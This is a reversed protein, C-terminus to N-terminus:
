GFPALFVASGRSGRNARFGGGAESSPNMWVRERSNSCKKRKTAEGKWATKPWHDIFVRPHVDRLFVVLTLPVGDGCGTRGYSGVAPGRPAARAAHALPALAARPLGRSGALGGHSGSRFIGAGGGGRGAKKPAHPEWSIGPSPSLEGLTPAAQTERRQRSLRGAPRAMALQPAAAEPNKARGPRPLSRAASTCGASVLGAGTAGWAARRGSKGAGSGRATRELDRTPTPAPAAATRRLAGGREM